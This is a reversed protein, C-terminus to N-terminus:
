MVEINKGDTTLIFFGSSTALFHSPNPVGDLAFSLSRVDSVLGDGKVNFPTVKLVLDRGFGGFDASNQAVTYKFYPTNVIFSSVPTADKSAIDVRWGTTSGDDEFHGYTGNGFGGAGNGENQAALEWTLEVDSGGSDIAIFPGTIPLSATWALPSTVWIKTRPQARPLWYDGRITYSSAAVSAVDWLVSAFNYGVIKYSINTGIDNLSIEHLFVGAAHQHFYEGSNHASIPTGGWGRFMRKAKYHNQGLLTLTEMSIAESGVILVGGGSARIAPTVDDLDYKQIFTPTSANFGSVPFIYFDVDTEVYGRSRNELPKPFLGSIIYPQTDQTLVYNAGDTSLYLQEGMVQSGQNYGFYVYAKSNQFEQPLEYAAQFLNPKIPNVLTGFGADISSTATFGLSATLIYPFERKGVCTYEGPKTRKVSTLRTRVGGSLTPEFSDTLTILDGQVLDADKYGIIFDYQDKGYLNAWLTRNAINYAVSGNMVFQATSSYLRVGNIDQDVEDDVQVQNQNYNISRDYYNIQIRNYGDELAAKTVKVPPTGIAAVLHNNDITRVPTDLGTIVGFQIVGGVETIFGNYLGCLTSLITLLNDASDYTTSVFINNDICHQVANEYSAENIRDPTITFGFMASTQFGFTESTLIRHIIYAPTVDLGAGGSTSGLRAEVTGPNHAGGAYETNIYIAGSKSSASVRIDVADPLTSPSEGLDTTPDAYQGKVNSMLPASTYLNAFCLAEAFWPKDSFSRVMLIFNSGFAVPSMFDDYATGAAGVSNKQVEAFPIINAGNSDKFYATQDSFSVVGTDFGDIGLSIQAGFMMGNPNAVRHDAIYQCWGSDSSSHTAHWDMEAKGVYFFVWAQGTSGADCVGATLKYSRNTGPTLFNNGVTILEAPLGTGFVITSGLLTSPDPLIHFWTSSSGGTGSDPYVVLVNGTNIRGVATISSGFGLKFEPRVIQFGGQRSLTGDSNIAYLVGVLDYYNAVGTSANGCIYFYPTGPIFLTNEFGLSLTNLGLAAADSRWQTETISNQTIGDIRTLTARNANVGIYQADGAYQNGAADENYGVNYRFASGENGPASKSLSLFGGDYGFTATVPVFECSIQPIASSQGLDLQNFGIWSVNPFQCPFGTVDEFYAWTSLNPDGTAYGPAFFAETFKISAIEQAPDVTFVPFLSQVSQSLGGTIASVSADDVPDGGIWARRIISPTDFMGFVFIMDWFYEYNVPASAGGKMSGFGGSGGGKAGGKGSSKQRVAQFNNTWGVQATVRNSGFTMSMDAGRVATNLTPAGQATSVAKKSSGFLALVPSIFLAGINQVTDSM